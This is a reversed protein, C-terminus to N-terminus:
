KVRNIYHYIMTEVYPTRMPYTFVRKGFVAAEFDESVKKFANIHAREQMSELDLTDCVVRFDEMGYLSAASTQNFFITAIEASIIQSYYAVWYLQNLKIRQSPSSQEWLPTKYLLSFPEPNWYQDKCAEYSFKQSLQDLEPGNDQQKNRQTNLELRRYTKSDDMLSKPHTQSLFQNM